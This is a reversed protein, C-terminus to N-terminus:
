RAAPCAWPWGRRTRPGSSRPSELVVDIRLDPQDHQDAQRRLVGDEDDGEGLGLIFVAFGQGVRRLGARRMRSRGMRIVEKAKMRPQRGSQIAEPEPAIERWVRPVTTMPPIIPAVQTSVSMTGTVNQMTSFSAARQLLLGRGPLGRLPKGIARLEVVLLGRYSRTGSLWGMRWKSNAIPWGMQWGGNAVLWGMRWKGNAALWGM